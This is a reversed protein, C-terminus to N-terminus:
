KSRRPSGAEGRGWNRRRGLLLERKEGGKGGRMKGEEV